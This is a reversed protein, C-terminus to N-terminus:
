AEDYRQKLTQEIHENIQKPINKIAEIRAIKIANGFAVSDSGGHSKIVIGKLGLLSAGNYRRPDARRRM